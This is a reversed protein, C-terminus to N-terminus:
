RPPRWSYNRMVAGGACRFGLREYFPLVADDCMVDVTYLGDVAVLLIRILESGIGQRRYDPLVELLPIYASLVGDSLANAFGVVRGADFALAVHASQAIPCSARRAITAVAM